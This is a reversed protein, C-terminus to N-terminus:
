VHFSKKKSMVNPDGKAKEKPRFDLCSAFGISHVILVFTASYCWWLHFRQPMSQHVIQSTLARLTMTEGRAKFSVVHCQWTQSHNSFIFLNLCMQNWGDLIHKTKGVDLNLDRTCFYASTRGHRRYKRLPKAGSSTKRWGIM